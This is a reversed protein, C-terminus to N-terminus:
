VDEYEQPHYSPAVTSSYLGHLGLGQLAPILNAESLFM